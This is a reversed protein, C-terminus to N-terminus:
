SHKILRWEKNKMKRKHEAIECRIREYNENAEQIDDIIMKSFDEIKM